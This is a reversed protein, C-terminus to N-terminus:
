RSPLLTSLSPPFRAVPAYSASNRQSAAAPVNNKSPDFSLLPSIINSSGAHIAGIRVMIRLVPARVAKWLRIIMLLLPGQLMMRIGKVISPVISRVNGDICVIHCALRGAGSIILMIAAIRVMMM